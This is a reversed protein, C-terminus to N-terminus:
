DNAFFYPMISSPLIGGWVPGLLNAFAHFLIAFWLSGDRLAIYGCVLGLLFSGPSIPIAGQSLAAQWVQPSLSAHFLWFILASVYVSWLGATKSPFHSELKQALVSQLCGRFFFEEYIPAALVALASSAALFAANIHNQLSFQWTGPNFAMFLASTGVFYGLSLRYGTRGQPKQFFATLSAKSNIAETDTAKNNRSHKWLLVGGASVLALALIAHIAVLNNMNARAFGVFFWLSFLAFAFKTNKFNM